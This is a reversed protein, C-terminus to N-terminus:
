GALLAAVRPHGALDAPLDFLCADWGAARAADCVEARDDVMLPPAAAPGLQADIARFFAPDRKPLGLAATHFMRNFDRNFGLTQWLYDARRREQATAIHLEAGRARLCRALALVEQNVAADRSFWYDLFAEVGGAYGLDPLLAALLPEIAGQGLSCREIPPPGGDPLPQFLARSLAEPDIGLDRQLTTDWRRRREPRAHWGDILVGDVDLFIRPGAIM